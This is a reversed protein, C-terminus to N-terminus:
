AARQGSRRELCQRMVLSWQTEPAIFEEAFWPMRNRDFVVEKLFTLTARVAPRKAAEREYCLYVPMSMRVDDLIPVLNAHVLGAYSPLMGVGGGWRIAECQTGFSNTRVLARDALGHLSAFTGRDSEALTFDVLRHRTLDELTSPTGNAELYERSAFPMFHLTAVITAVLSEDPTGTFQVQIDHSPSKTMAREISVHPILAISPHMRAFIGIFHPFWYTGMGDGLALRCEGEVTDTADCAVSTARAFQAAAAQVHSLFREGEPTLTVGHPLRNLLRVGLNKELSAIRLSIRQSSTELELSARRFSGFQAAAAFLRYDDWDTRSLDVAM